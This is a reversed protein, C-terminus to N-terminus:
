RNEELWIEFQQLLPGRDIEDRLFVFVTYAGEENKDIELEFGRSRLFKLLDQCCVRFADPSASVDKPISFLATRCEGKEPEIQCELKAQSVQLRELKFEAEVFENLFPGAALAIDGSPVQEFIEVSDWPHQCHIGKEACYQDVRAQISVSCRNCAIKLREIDDAISKLRERPDTM